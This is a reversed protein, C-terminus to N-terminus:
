FWARMRCPITCAIPLTMQDTAVPRTAWFYDPTKEGVLTDAPAASFHGSYWDRGKAYNDNRDFFHVEFPRPLFIAPQEALRAGLWTTGSKQAGIIVFDPLRM